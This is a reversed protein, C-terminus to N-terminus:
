HWDRNKIKNQWHNRPCQYHSGAKGFEDQMHGRAIKPWKSNEARNRTPLVRLKSNFLSHRSTFIAPAVNIAIGAPLIVHMFLCFSGCTNIALPKAEVLVLCRKWLLFQQRQLWHCVNWSIKRGFFQVTWQQYNLGNDLFICSTPFNQAIVLKVPFQNNNRKKWM